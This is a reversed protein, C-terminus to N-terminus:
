QDACGAARVYASRQDLSLDIAWDDQAAHACLGAPRLTPQRAVRPRVALSCANAIPASLTIRRAGAFQSDIRWLSGHVDSVAFYARQAASYVLGTFGVDRDTDADLALPHEGVALTEPDIRWLTPVVNSTVVAEGEPGLALDPLCAFSAGVWQWDPLPVEIGKRAAVDYLFVGDGNLIWIRKRAADVRYRVAPADSRSADSAAPPQAAGLDCGAISVYAVAVFLTKVANGNWM